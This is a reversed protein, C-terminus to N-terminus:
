TKKGGSLLVIGAVGFGAAVTFAALLLIVLIGSFPNGDAQLEAFGSLWSWGQLAALGAVVLCIIGGILRGTSIRQSSGPPKARRVKGDQIIVWGAPGSHYRAYQGTGPTFKVGNIYVPECSPASESGSLPAGCQPCFKADSSGQAGCQECFM